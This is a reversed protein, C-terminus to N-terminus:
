QQPQVVTETPSVHEVATTHTAAPNMREMAPTHTAAPSVHKAPLQTDTVETPAAPHAVTSQMKMQVSPTVHIQTSRLYSAHAAEADGSARQVDGQLSFGQAQSAPIAQM